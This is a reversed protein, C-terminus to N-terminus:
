VAIREQANADNILDELSLPPVYCDIFEHVDALYRRKIAKYSVSIADVGLYERKMQTYIDSYVKRCTSSDKYAGSEAGGMVKVAKRNVHKRVEDAEHAYLPIDYELREIRNEMKVIKTDHMMIAKMEASFEKSEYFGNKRIAPLVESTVWRKFRKASDLRSGFVLAYLGSENIVALDQKGGLTDCKAVGKDELDVHKALADRTNTYGLAEAVDKGVFWPEGDIVVTRIEGFEENKFIELKNLIRGREKNLRLVRILDRRKM